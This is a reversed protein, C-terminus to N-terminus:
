KVVVGVLAWVDTKMLNKLTLGGSPNAKHQPSGGFCSACEVDILIPHLRNKSTKEFLATAVLALTKVATMKAVISFFGAMNNVM